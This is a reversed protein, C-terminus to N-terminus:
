GAIERINRVIIDHLLEVEYDGIIPELHSDGVGSDDTLFVYNAGTMIAAARGFLETERGSNSAVVPVLRVGMKAANSIAAQLQEERGDHPPADFILFAIKNTDDSWVDPSMTESLIDAVAEPWDGGGDAFEANLLSQVKRLDDTFPNCKTVYDDGEDRYFNVSFVVNEAAVEEAISSFDKQLYAIEDSMSGTTDLIFMVETTDYVATDGTLEVQYSAQSVSKGNNQQDAKRSADVTVDEAGEVKLTLTESVNSAPDYFLYAMGDADSVASWILDSGDYLAAVANRVPEGARECKVAVRGTPDLGFSPFEINGGNVLNSFFGWNENDNWEGATLVFADADSDYPPLEAPEEIEAPADASPVEAAADLAADDLAGKRDGEGGVIEGADDAAFDASIAEEAAPAEAPEGESAKAPTKESASEANMAPTEAPSEASGCGTLLAAPIMLALLAITTRKM